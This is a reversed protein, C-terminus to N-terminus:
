HNKRSHTYTLNLKVENLTNLALVIDREDVPTVDSFAGCKQLASLCLDRATAM